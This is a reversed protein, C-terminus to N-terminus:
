QRSWIMKAGSPAVDTTPGVFFDSRNKPSSFIALVGKLGSLCDVIHHINRAHRLLNVDTKTEDCLNSKGM